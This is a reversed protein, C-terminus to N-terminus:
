PGVREADTWLWSPLWGLMMSRDGGVFLSANRLVRAEEELCERMDAPANVAYAKRGESARQLDAALGTRVYREVAPWVAALVQRLEDDLLAPSAAHWADVADEVLDQPLNEPKM